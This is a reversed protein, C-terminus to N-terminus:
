SVLLVQIGHIIMKFLDLQEDEIKNIDKHLHPDWVTNEYEIIPVM